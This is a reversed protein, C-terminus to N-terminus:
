QFDPQAFGSEDLVFMESDLRFSKELVDGGAFLLEQGEADVTGPWNVVVLRTRAIGKLAQVVNLEMENDFLIEVNDLFVSRGPNMSRLFDLTEMPLDPTAMRHLHASLTKGLNIPRVSVSALCKEVFLAKDPSNGTLLLLKIGAESAMKHLGVYKEHPALLSNHFLSAM